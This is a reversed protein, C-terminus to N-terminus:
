PCFGILSVGKWILYKCHQFLPYLMSAKYRQCFTGFIAISPLVSIVKMDGSVFMQTNSNDPFIVVARCSTMEASGFCILQDGSSVVPRAHSVQLLNCSLHGITMDTLLTSRGTMSRKADKTREGNEIWWQLIYRYTKYAARWPTITIICNPYYYVPYGLHGM